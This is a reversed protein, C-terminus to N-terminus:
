AALTGLEVVAPTSSLLLQLQVYLYCSFTWMQEAKTEEALAVTVGHPKPRYPHRNRGNSLAPSMPVLSHSSLLEQCLREAAEVPNSHGKRHLSNLM